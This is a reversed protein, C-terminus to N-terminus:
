IWPPQVPLFACSLASLKTSAPHWMAVVELKSEVSTKLSINAKMLLLSQLRFENQQYGLPHPFFFFFYIFSSPKFNQWFILCICLCKNGGGEYGAENNCIFALSETGTLQQTKQKDRARSGLELLTLVVQPFCQAWWIGSNSVTGTTLDGLYHHIVLNESTSCRNWSRISTDRWKVKLSKVM